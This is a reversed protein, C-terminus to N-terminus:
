CPKEKDKTKTTPRALESSETGTVGISPQGAVM